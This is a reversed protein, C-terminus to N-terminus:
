RKKMCKSDNDDCCIHLCFRFLVILRVLYWWQVIFANGTTHECTCPTQQTSYFTVCVISIFNEEWQSHHFDGQWSPHSSYPKFKNESKKRKHFIQKTKVHTEFEWNVSKMVLHYNVYMRKVTFHITISNPAFFFCVLEDNHSNDFNYIWEIRSKWHPDDFFEIANCIVLPRVKKWKIIKNKKWKM